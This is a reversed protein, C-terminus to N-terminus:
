RFAKLTVDPLHGISKPDWTKPHPASSAASRVKDKGNIQISEAETFLWANGSHTVVLFQAAHVRVAGLAFLAGLLWRLLTKGAM